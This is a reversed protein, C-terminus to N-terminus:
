KSSFIYYELVNYVEAKVFQEDRQKLYQKLEKDTILNFAKLTVAECVKRYIFPLIKKLSIFEAYPEAIDTRLPMLKRKFAARQQATITELMKGTVAKVLLVILRDLGKKLIAKQLDYVSMSEGLFSTADAVGFVIISICM